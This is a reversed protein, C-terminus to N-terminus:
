FLLQDMAEAELFPLKVPSTRDIKIETSSALNETSSTKNKNNNKISTYNVYLTLKLHEIYHNLWETCKEPSM